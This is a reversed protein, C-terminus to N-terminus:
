VLSRHGRVAKSWCHWVVGGDGLDNLRPNIGAQQRGPTQAGILDELGLQALEAVGAYYGARLAHVRQRAGRRRIRHGGRGPGIGPEDGPLVVRARPRGLDARAEVGARTTAGVRSNRGRAQPRGVGGVLRVQGRGRARDREPDVRDRRARLDREAAGRAHSRDYADLDAVVVYSRRSRPRPGADRAHDDPPSVAGARAYTVESRVGIDVGPVKVEADADGISGAVHVPDRAHDPDGASPPLSTSM